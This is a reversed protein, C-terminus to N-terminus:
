LPDEAPPVGTWVSVAFREPERKETGALAEKGSPWYVAWAECVSTAAGGSVPRLAGTVNVIWLAGGVIM